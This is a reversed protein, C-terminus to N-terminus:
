EGSGNLGVVYVAVRKVKDTLDYLRRDGDKGRQDIIGSDRHVQAKLVKTPSLPMWEYVANGIVM